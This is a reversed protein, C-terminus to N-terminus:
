GIRHTNYSVREVQLKDLAQITILMNKLRLHQNEIEKKALTQRNECNMIDSEQRCAWPDLNKPDYEYLSVEKAQKSHWVKYFNERAQTAVSGEALIDLDNFNKNKNLGFYKDGVNRGGTIIRKGDAVLMKAHDRYTLNFLNLSVPNYVRIELTQNGSADKGKELLTAFLARPITNSLADVIVKVHVGRQAAEILLALGGISQEDNWVSFYEAIVESKAQQILDIRAQLANQDNSLLLAKDAFTTLSYCAILTICFLISKM